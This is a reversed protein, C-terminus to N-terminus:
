DDRTSSWGRGRGPREAGGAPASRGPTAPATAGIVAYRHPPRDQASPLEAAYRVIRVAAWSRPRLLFPLIEKRTVDYSCNYGYRRLDFYCFFFPATRGYFWLSGLIVTVLSYSTFPVLSM